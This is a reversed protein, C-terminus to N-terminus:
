NTPSWFHGLGKRLEAKAVISALHVPYQGIGAIFVQWTSYSKEFCTSCVLRNLQLSQAVLLLVINTAEAMDLNHLTIIM